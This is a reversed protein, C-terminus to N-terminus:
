FDIEYCCIDLCKDLMVILFKNLVKLCKFCRSKVKVHQFPHESSIIDLVFYSDMDLYITDQIVPSTFKVLGLGLLHTDVLEMWANTRRGHFVDM